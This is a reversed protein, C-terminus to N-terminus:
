FLEGQRLADRRGPNATSMQLLWPVTMAAFEPRRGIAILVLAAALADYLAAHYRLREGPCHQNALTDLEGQVGFTGVLQQLQGTGLQPFLEACLRGTDIWPGWDNVAGGPRAFDPSQRPYPWVAKILTNEAHAYHAALPGSARLDAFYAFEDQFPAHGAVAAESLGHVAVDEPRIRGMARCLRTRTEAVAGGRLTVVGFELIGSAVSGEFDIFHLPVDNWRMGSRHGHIERFVRFNEPQGGLAPAGRV